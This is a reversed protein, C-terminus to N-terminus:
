RRAALEVRSPHPFVKRFGPLWHKCADGRVGCDPCKTALIRGAYAGGFANPDLDDKSSVARRWLNHLPGSHAV